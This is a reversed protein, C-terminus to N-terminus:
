RKSERVAQVIRKAALDVFRFVGAVDTGGSFYSRLEDGTKVEMLQLETSLKPDSGSLAGKVALRPGSSGGLQDLSAQDARVAAIKAARLRQVLRSACSDAFPRLTSDGAALVLSLVAVEAPSAVPKQATLDNGAGMFTLLAVAGLVRPRICLKFYPTM